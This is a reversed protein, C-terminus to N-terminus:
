CILTKPLRIRQVIKLADYLKSENVNSEFGWADIHRVLTETSLNSGSGEVM